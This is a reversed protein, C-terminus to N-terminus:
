ARNEKTQPARIVRVNPYDTLLEDPTLGLHAVDQTTIAVGGFYARNGLPEVAHPNGDVDFIVGPEPTWDVVQGTLDNMRKLSERTLRRPNQPENQTTM